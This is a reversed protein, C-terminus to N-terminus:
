FDALVPPAISLRAAGSVRRPREMVESSSASRAASSGHRLPVVSGRGARPLRFQKTLGNLEHAQASLEEASAAAEEASSANQQVVREVDGIAQSVQLLARSQEDSAEWIKTVAHGVKAVAADISALETAAEVGMEEGRRTLEISEGILTETRRAAEKARQALSRVEDAVVAFGRGAEGARAAEVAANLALLNTQFAIENIDRVITATSEAATRIARVAASIDNTVEVGSAAATRAESALQDVSRAAVANERSHSAIQQLTATTEELAAAQQCAGNSLTQGTQSIQASAGAVHSSSVSVHVFGDALNALADNMADRMAGYEGRYNGAMRATLDRDAVRAMIDAAERMPALTSEVFANTTELMAKFVGSAKSTDARRSLDGERAAAVLAQNQELVGRIVTVAQALSKSLVDRESRPVVQVDLDGRTLAEAHWTLLRAHDIAARFADALAGLEDTGRHTVVKTVDGEALAVAAATLEALPKTASRVISFALVACLLGCGLVAALLMREASTRAAIAEDHARGALVAEWAMLDEVRNRVEIGAADGEDALLKQAKEADGSEALALVHENIPKWHAVASEIAKWRVLEGDLFPLADYGRSAEDLHSEALDRERRATRVEGFRKGQVAAVAAAANASMAASERNIRDILVLEPVLIEATTSLSSELRRMGAYGILGVAVLGLLAAFVAIALRHAIKM